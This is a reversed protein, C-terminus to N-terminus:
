VKDKGDEGDVKVTAVLGEPVEKNGMAQALALVSEEDETKVSWVEKTAQLLEHLQGLQEASLKEFLESQLKQGERERKKGKGEPDLANQALQEEHFDLYKKWESLFGVIHLANDTSRTRRFESQTYKLNKKTKLKQWSGFLISHCFLFYLKVKIYEDGMVRMEIPLAKRHVRLLRRYLPIPSLLQAALQSTPGSRFVTNVLPKNLDNAALRIITTRM